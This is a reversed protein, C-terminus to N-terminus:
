SPTKQEGLATSLEYLSSWRNGYKRDAPRDTKPLLVIQREGEMGIATMRHVLKEEPECERALLDAEVAYRVDEYKYARLEHLLGLSKKRSRYNQASVGAPTTMFLGLMTYGLSAMIEAYLHDDRATIAEQVTNQEDVLEKSAAEGPSVAEARINRILLEVNSAYPRVVKDERSEQLDGEVQDAMNILCNSVSTNDSPEPDRWIGDIILQTGTPDDYCDQVNGHELSIPVPYEFITFENSIFHQASKVFSIAALAGFGLMAIRSRRNRHLLTRETRRYKSSSDLSDQYAPFNEEGIEAKIVENIEAHALELALQLDTSEDGITDSVLDIDSFSEAVTHKVNVLSEPRFLPM